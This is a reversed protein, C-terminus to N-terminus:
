SGGHQPKYADSPKMRRTDNPSVVKGMVIVPHEIPKRAMALLHEWIFMQLFNTDVYTM